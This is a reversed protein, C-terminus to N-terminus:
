EPLQHVSRWTIGDESMALYHQCPYTDRIQTSMTAFFVVREDYWPEFRTTRLQNKEWDFTLPIFPVDMDASVRMAYYSDKYGDLQGERSIFYLLVEGAGAMKGIYRVGRLVRLLEFSETNWRYFAIGVFDLPNPEEIIIDMGGPRQDAIAGILIRGKETEVSDLWAELLPYVHRDDSDGASTTWAAALMKKTDGAGIEHVQGDSLGIRIVAGIGPKFWFGLFSSWVTNKNEHHIRTRMGYVYLNKGDLWAGFGRYKKIKACLHVQEPSIAFCYLTDETNHILYTSTSSMAFLNSRRYEPLGKTDRLKPLSAYIYKKAENFCVFLSEQAVAWAIKQNSGVAQLRICSGTESDIVQITAGDGRLIYLNGRSDIFCPQMLVKDISDCLNTPSNTIHM